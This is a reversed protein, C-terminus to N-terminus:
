EEVDKDCGYGYKLMMSYHSMCEEDNFEESGKKFLEFSKKNDQDVWFDYFYAYGLRRICEIENNDVGKKLYEVCDNYKEEEESKLVKSLLQM